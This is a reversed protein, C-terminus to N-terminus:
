AFLSLQTPGRKGPAPARECGPMVLQPGSPTLEERYAELPATRADSPTNLAQLHDLIPVVDFRDRRIAAATSASFTELVAAGTAKDIVVWSATEMDTAGIAAAM